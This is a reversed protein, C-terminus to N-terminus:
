ARKETEQARSQASKLEKLSYETRIGVIGVPQYDNISTTGDRLYQIVYEIMEYSDYAFGYFLGTQNDHVGWGYSEYMPHFRQELTMEM